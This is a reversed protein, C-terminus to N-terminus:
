VRADMWTVMDEIVKDKEPENLVEHFLGEYLKLTKDDSKARRYLEQSGDPESIRDSSGHLILIPLSIEGMKEKIINIARKIEFATGAPIWGHYVLPDKKYTEVINPDRSLFSRDLSKVIRMRPCLRGVFQAMIQMFPSYESSVRLFPGSLILGKLRPHSVIVFLSAITGGLSHGLLFISKETEKSEVHKLFTKLDEAYENFSRAFGRIGESRGHGRLDFMYVAYGRRVLCEALSVYRGSHEGYGHVIVLAAKPKTDPYWAREFLRLGGETKLIGESTHM